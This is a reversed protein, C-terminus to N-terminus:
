PGFRSRFEKMSTGGFDRKYMENIAKKLDDGDISVACRRELDDEVGFSSRPAQNAGVAEVDEAMDITDLVIKNDKEAITKKLRNVVARRRKKSLEKNYRVFEAHSMWKPTASARAEVHVALKKWYLAQMVDWKSNLNERVWAALANGQHKPGENPSKVVKDLESSDPDFYVHYLVGQPITIPPAVDVPELEITLPGFEATREGTSGVTIDPIAASEDKGTKSITGPEDEKESMTLRAIMVIRLIRLQKMWQNWESEPVGPLKLDSPNESKHYIDLEVSLNTDPWTENKRGIKREFKVDGEPSCSFPFEIFITVSGQAVKSWHPVKETGKYLITLAFDVNGKTGAPVGLKLSRGFDDLMLSSPDKKRDGASCTNLRPDSCYVSSGDTTIRATVNLNAISLPGLWQHVPVNM